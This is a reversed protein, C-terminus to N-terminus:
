RIVIGKEVDDPALAFVVAAPFEWARVDEYRSEVAELERERENGLADIRRRIERLDRESQRREDDFLGQQPDDDIEEAERLAERLTLGFRDFIEIVRRRDAERRELLQGEVARRRREARDRIADEVRSSLGEQANWAQALQDAVAGSVSEIDHSDLARELLDEAREQGIARHQALRTGALFVEEHLRLGARGVLVLRTVAVAYSEDLGPVVM